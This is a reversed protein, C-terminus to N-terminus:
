ADGNATSASSTAPTPTPARAAAAPRLAVHQPKADAAAAQRRAASRGCRRVAHPEPRLVRRLHGVVIIDRVAQKDINFPWHVPPVFIDQDSRFVFKTTDWQLYKDSFTICEHPIVAYALTMLAFVGVAGAM